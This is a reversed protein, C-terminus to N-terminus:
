RQLQGIHLGFSINQLAIHQDRGMDARIRRSQRMLRHIEHVRRDINQLHIFMLHQRLHFRNQGNVGGFAVPHDIM